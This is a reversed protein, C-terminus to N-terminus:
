LSKNIFYNALHELIQGDSYLRYKYYNFKGSDRIIKRCQSIYKILTGPNENIQDLGVENAVERFMQYLERYEQEHDPFYDMSRPRIMIRKLYSYNKKWKQAGM